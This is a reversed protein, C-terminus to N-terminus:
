RSIFGLCLLVSNCLVLVVVDVYSVICCMKTRVLFVLKLFTLILQEPRTLMEQDVNTDDTMIDRSMLSLHDGHVVSHVHRLWLPFAM